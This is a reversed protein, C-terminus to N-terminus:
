STGANTDRATTFNMFKGVSIRRTELLRDIGLCHRMFDNSLDDRALLACIANLSLADRWIPWRFAFGSDSRAGGRTALRVEGSREHPAVTLIALGVAALRNAGHQAGEKNGAYSPDGFMLAYRVDEAPDWRFSPTPDQRTWAAFITEHISMEGTVTQAKSGRGRPPPGPTNPVASFRELFHQHGQGFLLCLPTAEIQDQPKGQSVKVAADSFLAAFLDAAHRSTARGKILLARAEYVTHNLDAKDEFAHAKALVALGETTAACIADPSTSQRLRLIPRLPPEDLSWRVRPRWTPRATELARLLGLLALFALLNDAELGDLRHQTATETM